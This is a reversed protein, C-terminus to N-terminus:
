DMLKCLSEEDSYHLGAKMLRDIMLQRLEPQPFDLSRLRIECEAAKSAESEISASYVSYGSGQRVLKSHVKLAQAPKVFNRFRAGDVGALFSMKQFGTRLCALYGSAQAMTEILLVGPLLPFQPFHGEFVPSHEPLNGVCTIEDQLDNIHEIRDIMQFYELLM